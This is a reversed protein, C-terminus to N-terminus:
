IRLFYLLTEIVILAIMPTFSLNLLLVLVLPLPHITQIQTFPPLYPISSVIELRTAIITSATQHYKRYYKYLNM